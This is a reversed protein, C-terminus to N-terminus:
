TNWCLLANPHQTHSPGTINTSTSIWHSLRDDIIWRRTSIPRSTRKTGRDLRTPRRNVPPNPIEKPRLSRTRPLPPPPQHRNTKSSLNTPSRALPSYPPSHIAQRDVNDEPKGKKLFRLAKTLHDNLIVAEHRLKGILLNKEKVEKEFPLARELNKKTQDLETVLADYRSQVQQLQQRLSDQESQNTEVLEKLEQKRVNQIEHLAKQLGDVTNSQTEREAAAKEYAEKLSVVQEELDANRDALDRRITREEMALVEWDHMAQKADEFEERLYAEQDVLENKEKHWNQQSLTLRERLSSLEKSQEAARTDADRNRAALEELEASRATYQEQLQSKQEELEDIRTRAQTLEEADAKLREGLQSRITNVKGLLSQYQEEANERAEQSEALENQLSELEEGHKSQLDQLSQKLQTTEAKLDNHEKTLDDLAANSDQDSSTPHKSQLQELSQRLQTVELRLADRDKVLADFRTASDDSEKDDVSLGNSHNSTPPNATAPASPELDEEDSVDSAAVATPDLTNPTQPEIPTSPETNTGSATTQANAKKKSKKKKKSKQDLLSYQYQM